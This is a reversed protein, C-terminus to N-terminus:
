NCDSTKKRTVSFVAYILMFMGPSNVAVAILAEYHGFIAMAIALMILMSVSSIAVSRIVIIDTKSIMEWVKASTGGPCTIPGSRTM